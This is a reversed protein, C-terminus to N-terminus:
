ELEKIEKDSINSIRDSLYQSVTDAFNELGDADVMTLMSEFVSLIHLTM